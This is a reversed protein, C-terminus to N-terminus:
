TISAEWIILARFFPDVKASSARTEPLGSASTRATILECMIFGSGASLPQAIGGTVQRPPRWDRGCRSVHGHRHPASRELVRSTRHHRSWQLVNLAKPVQRIKYLFRLEAKTLDLQESESKKMPPDTLTMTKRMSPTNNLNRSADKCRRACFTAAFHGCKRIEAERKRVTLSQNYVTCRTPSSGVVLLNLTEQEVM